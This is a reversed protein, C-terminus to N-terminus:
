GDCGVPVVPGTPQGQLLFELVAGFEESLGNWLTKPATEAFGADSITRLRHCDAPDAKLAMTQQKSSSVLPPFMAIVSM